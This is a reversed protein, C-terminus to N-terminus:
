EITLDAGYLVLGLKRAVARSARNDWDTSYLPIRGEARVAQAWAATVATAYGHGRFAEMTELGAEAADPTNRASFCISALRGERVIALCPQRDPLDAALTPFVERM